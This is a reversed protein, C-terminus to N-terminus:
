AVFDKRWRSNIALWGHLLHTGPNLKERQWIVSQKCQRCEQLRMLGTMAAWSLSEEIQWEEGPIFGSWSKRCITVNGSQHTHLAPWTYQISAAIGLAAMQDALDERMVRLHEMRCRLTNGQGAFANEFANLGVGIASDGIAHMAIPYGAKLVTDVIANMEDQTRFLDGHTRQPFGDQYLTTIASAYGCSGGDAFIKVGVVRTTTDKKETYPYIKWPIVDNNCNTNYNIYFNMRVALDGSQALSQACSIFDASSTPQHVTTYGNAAMKRTALALGEAGNDTFGIRLSHDHAEILGPVVTRGGLDILQIGATQLALMEDNTGVASIRNGAIAIAQVSLTQEDVTIVNANYLIINPNSFASLSGEKARPKPQTESGAIPFLIFAGLFLIRANKM